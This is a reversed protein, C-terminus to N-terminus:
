DIVKIQERSVQQTGGERFDQSQIYKSSQDNMFQDVTMEYFMISADIEKVGALEAIVSRARGGHSTVVPQGKFQVALSLRGAEEPIFGGKRAFFLAGRYMVNKGIEMMEPDTESKIKKALEVIEQPDKVSKAEDLFREVLYYDDRPLTLELFTRPPMTVFVDGWKGKQIESLKKKEKLVLKM